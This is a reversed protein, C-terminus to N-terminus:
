FEESEAFAASKANEHVWKYKVTVLNEGELWTGIGEMVVEAYGSKLHLALVGQDVRAIGAERALATLVNNLFTGRFKYTHAHGFRDDPYTIFGRIRHGKQTISVHQKKVLDGVIVDCKWLGDIRAGRYLLDEIWPKIVDKWFLALVLCVFSTILGSIVGAIL